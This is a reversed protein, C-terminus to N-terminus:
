SRRKRGLARLGPESMVPPERMPPESMAPELSVAPPADLLRNSLPPAVKRVQRSSM